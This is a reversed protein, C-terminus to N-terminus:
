VLVVESLIVPKSKHNLNRVERFHLLVALREVAVAKLAEVASSEHSPTASPKSVSVLLVQTKQDSNQTMNEATQM